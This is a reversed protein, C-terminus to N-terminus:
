QVHSPAVDTFAPYAYRALFFYDGRQVSIGM